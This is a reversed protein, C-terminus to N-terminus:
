NHIAKYALSPFDETSSRQKTPLRQTCNGPLQRLFTKGTAETDPGPLDMYYGLSMQFWFPKAPLITTFFAATSTIKVRLFNKPFSKFAGLTLKHYNSKRLKLIKVVAWQASSALWHNVPPTSRFQKNINEWEWNISLKFPFVNMNLKPFYLLVFIFASTM